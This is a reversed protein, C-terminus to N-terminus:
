RVPPYFRELTEDGAGCLLLLHLWGWRLLSITNRRAGQFRRASSEVVAPLCVLRGAKRLRLVLAFDEMVRELPYGGLEEFVARRVWLASDGYFLRWRSRANYIRTYLDAVPSPPVFRIRFNGGLVRPDQLASALLRPTDPPLHTDAHLFLLVDGTAAAAGFNMQRGRGRESHLLHWGERGALFAAALEPTADTSGGDVILVEADPACAAVNELTALLGREENLTPIIISLANPRM